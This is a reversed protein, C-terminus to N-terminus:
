QLLTMRSFRTDLPASFDTANGIQLVVLLIKRPHTLSTLVDFDFTYLKLPPPYTSYICKKLAM